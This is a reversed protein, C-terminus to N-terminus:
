ELPVTVVTVVLEADVLDIRSFASGPIGRFVDSKTVDARYASSPSVWVPVSGISGAAEHHNHGSIVIRVDSGAIASRLDDPNRLRLRSM